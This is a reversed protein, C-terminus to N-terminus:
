RFFLLINMHSKYNKNISIKLERRLLLVSKFNAQTDTADYFDCKPM